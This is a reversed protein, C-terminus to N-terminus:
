SPSSGCDAWRPAPADPALQTIAKAILLGLAAIAIISLARGVYLADGFLKALAGVAYFSLPPYNNVVLGDLRPYLPAAGMAADAYYANWGDNQAIEIPFGIRWLPWVVFYAALLALLGIQATVGFRRSGTPKAKM